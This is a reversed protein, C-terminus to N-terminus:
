FYSPVVYELVCTSSTAADHSFLLTFLDYNDLDNYVGTAYEECGQLIFLVNESLPVYYFVATKM